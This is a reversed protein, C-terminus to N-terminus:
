LFRFNTIQQLTGYKLFLNPISKFVRVKRWRLWFGSNVKHGFMVNCWYVVRSVEVVIYRQSFVSVIVNCASRTKSKPPSSERLENNGSLNQVIIINNWCVGDVYFIFVLLKISCKILIKFMNSNWKQMYTYFLYNHM